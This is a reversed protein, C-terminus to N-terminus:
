ITKKRGQLKIKANFVDQFIEESLQIIQADSIAEGRLGHELFIDRLTEVEDKDYEFPLEDPKGKMRYIFSFIEKELEHEDYNRFGAYAELDDIQFLEDPFSDDLVADLEELREDIKAIETELRLIESQDLDSDLEYLSDSKDVLTKRRKLLSKIESEESFNFNILNKPELLQSYNSRNIKM